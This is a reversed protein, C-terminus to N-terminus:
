DDVYGTERKITEIIENVVENFSKNTTDILVADDARKLPAFKRESDNKDRYIMDSLVEEFPVNKGKELLELRRREARTEVDATLFIKVEADPLVYTGIDRGDMIVNKESAIKRQIKALKIRVEPIVAVDSAGISVEPTRIEDSVDEGNLYVRLAGKEELLDIDISDLFSIVSEHSKTNGGGKQVHLAVARYMAGTDIYFLGLSSAVTKSVTSKGAGAPGDVAVKFTKKM